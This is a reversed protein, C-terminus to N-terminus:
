SFPGLKQFRVLVDSFRHGFGTLVTWSRVCTDSLPRFDAIKKTQLTRLRVTSNLFLRSRGCVSALTRSGSPITWFCVIKRFWFCLFDVEPLYRWNANVQTLKRMNGHSRPSRRGKKRARLVLTIKHPLRLCTRPSRSTRTARPFLLEREGRAHRREGVFRIFILGNQLSYFPRLHGFDSPFPRLNASVSSTTRFYFPIRRFDFQIYDTDHLPPYSCSIVSFSLM